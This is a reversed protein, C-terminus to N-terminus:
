EGWGKRNKNQKKKFDPAIVSKDLEAMFPRYGQVAEKSKYRLEKIRIRNMEENQKKTEDRKSKKITKGM